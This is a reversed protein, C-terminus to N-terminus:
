LAADAHLQPRGFGAHLEVASLQEVHGHRPEARRRVASVAAEAELRLAEGVPRVLGVERGADQPRALDRALHAFRPKGDSSAGAISSRSCPNSRRTAPQQKRTKAASSAMSGSSASGWMRMTGCRQRDSGILMLPTVTPWTRRARLGPGNTRLGPRAARRPERPTAMFCSGAM